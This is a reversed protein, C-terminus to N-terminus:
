ITVIDTVLSKLAKTEEIYIFSDYRESLISPVYNGYQEHEPNYVVGIARHGIREKFLHKNEDTFIIIKNMPNAEHLSHEWSGQMAQPVTLIEISDGWSRSATVSGKYTGFGVTYVNKEGYKERMIQGVNVMGDEVMDTARADGIHTNHEWIIIKTDNGYYNLIESVTEVMHHDRINWDEPGGKVMARYYAEANLTVLSNVAMNLAAEEGNKYLHKNERIKILLRVVEETCDEGYFAASVAYQEPKRHFPEFCSFAKKATELDVSDNKQLVKIIEDMSEWLSYVDLGYFGIKNSDLNQNYENLWTILEKVEENAWMWTPWRTFEKLAEDASIKEYGKIYSNIKFCSPWNGEVAIVKFGKERILRKSIESRITYFESTGHSAEGLLVYQADGIAEIISDLDTNNQFPISEQNIAEILKTRM